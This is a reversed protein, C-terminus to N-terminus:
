KQTHEVKRLWKTYSLSFLILGLWIFSFSIFHTKTFSEKYLLVGLLLNITPSLYQMIGIISLPVVKAGMAFWLLPMATIVGSGIALLILSLPSSIFSGTGQYLEIYLLYGLALPVMIFTELALGTIADANVIKKVLGYFAFSLALCLAIWPFSGYSFTLVAVGIGAFGIAVKQWGNLQERLIITGLFISILPNIYYGLSAEILHGHNVAWIYIFWNVSILVGCLFIFFLRKKDKIFEKLNQWRKKFILLVSVFIFSWFIRHALIEQSSYSDLLKWYIPLLGWSAYAIFTYLIGSKMDKNPKKM